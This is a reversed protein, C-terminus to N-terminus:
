HDVSSHREHNDGGEQATSETVPRSRHKRLWDDFAHPATCAPSNDLVPESRHSVVENKGVVPAAKCGGVTVFWCQPDSCYQIVGDQCGEFVGSCNYRPYFEGTCGCAVFAVLFPNGSDCALTSTGAVLLCILLLNRLKQM